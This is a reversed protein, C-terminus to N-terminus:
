YSTDWYMRWDPSIELPEGGIGQRIGTGDANSHFVEPEKWRVSSDGFLINSGGLHIREVAWYSTPGNGDDTFPPGIGSPALDDNNQPEQVQYPPGSNCGGQGDTSRGWDVILIKSTPNRIQGAARGEFGPVIHSGPQPGFGINYGQGMFWDTIYPRSPCASIHQEVESAVYEWLKEKWFPNDPYRESNYRLYMEFALGVQRFNSRCATARAQERARVLAPMLMGALIAIIAIVILLEILTFAAWRRGSKRLWGTVVGM